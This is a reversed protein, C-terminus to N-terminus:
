TSQSDMKPFGLFPLVSLISIVPHWLPFAIKGAFAVFVIKPQHSHEVELSHHTLQMIKYLLSLM